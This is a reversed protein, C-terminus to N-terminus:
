RRANRKRRRAKKPKKAATLKKALALNDVARGESRAQYFESMSEYVRARAWDQMMPAGHIEGLVVPKMDGVVVPAVPAPAPPPAPVADGPRAITTIAAAAPAIGLVKLFGRRNM